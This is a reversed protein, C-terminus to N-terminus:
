GPAPGPPRAGPAPTLQEQLKDKPAPPPPRTAEIYAPTRKFQAFIRAAGTADHARCAQALLDQRTRGDPLVEALFGHFTPMADIAEWDPVLDNVAEAFARSQEDMAEKQQRAKREAESEEVKTQLPKILERTQEIHQQAIRAAVKEISKVISPGYEETLRELDEDGAEPQQQAKAQLQTELGSIQAQLAKVQEALGSSQELQSRLSRIERSLRPVEADYKGQLVRYKTEWTDEPPPDVPPVDEAKPEEIPPEEIKPEQPPETAKLQEILVEAREAQKRVQSPLAM